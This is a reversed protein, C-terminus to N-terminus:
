GTSWGDWILPSVSASSTSSPWTLPSGVCPMFCVSFRGQTHPRHSIEMAKPPLVIDVNIRVIMRISKWSLLLKGTSIHYMHHMAHDNLKGITTVVTGAFFFSSGFDWNSPNTSNGSPNVGSERADLIVQLLVYLLGFLKMINDPCDFCTFM